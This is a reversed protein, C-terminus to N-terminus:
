RLFEGIGARIYRQVDAEDRRGFVCKCYYCDPLPADQSVLVKGFDGRYTILRRPERIGTACLMFETAALSAVVGNISVVSPGVRGLDIAKVGYVAERLKRADPGELERQAESLDLQGLCVLCSEGRLAVCVRGGYGPQDGPEIDSAVDFYPRGYAACLETLVLRAGESDLCGFVYDSQIVLKFARDNVVSDQVTTVGITPDIEKILREAIAVKPTGPVPDDHRCTVYRNRNTESLEEGDILSISGVGLFACQQVIHSGVGGVGVIAASTNRLRNQGQEGFFGKDIEIIGQSTEWGGLAIIQETTITASSWPHITGEIDVFFKPGQSQPEQGQLETNV